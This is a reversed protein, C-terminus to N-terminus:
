KMFKLYLKAHDEVSRFPSSADATACIFGDGDKNEAYSVACNGSQLVYGTKACLVREGGEKDEVRRLFLNSIEIGKPHQETPETTMMHVSMVERCLENEMAAQMIVAMDYITCYHDEDYLGICNTFHATDSLGLEKLKENMMEVFKEQSGAVYTALGLAADAGSPMITGYFLEKVTMVEGVEYGVCSCDNVFSYDTIEQTMTFTDDLDQIHEAAVLVTLVKTMSAPVILTKASKQAVVTNNKVDILVAYKSVIDQEGLQVTEDTFAAEYPEKRAAEEGQETEGQGDLPLAAKAPIDGNQTEALTGKQTIAIIGNISIGSEKQNTKAQNTKERNAKAQENVQPKKFIHSLFLCMILVVVGGCVFPAAKKIMMRRRRQQEKMRRMEEYREKRRLRREEEDQESLTSM